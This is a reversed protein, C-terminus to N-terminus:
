TAALIRQHGLYVFPDHDVQRGVEEDHAHLVQETPFWQEIGPALVV